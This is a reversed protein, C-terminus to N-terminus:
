RRELNNIIVKAPRIVLNNLQYGAQKEETIIHDKITKDEVQGISEHIQPNFEQKVTKIKEVQNDRLFTDWMKIIHELGISWSEARQKQPIHELALRYNDFIPLLQLVIDSTLYKALDSVRKDTEKQLNQYDALAKQWGALHEAVKIELEKIQKVKNKDSM